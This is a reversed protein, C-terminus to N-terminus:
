GPDSVLEVVVANLVLRGRDTLRFRGSVTEVFGQQELFKRRDASMHAPHRDLEAVAIGDRLRLGMFLREEFRDRDSLPEWDTASHPACRVTDLWETPSRRALTAFRQGGVTLRGHAGPGIGAYDKGTWYCRNHRCQKGSRAFNSVEYLSLGNQECLDQSLVFMDAALDDAPPNLTGRRRAREFPTGPEITLQYLSLHDPQWELAESLESRWDALTQGPRAYILDLSLNDFQTRAADFASRATAADHWRGLFGLANDDISQVGLSLRNIGAAKLMPATQLDIDSPNAELSVELRDSLPWLAAARDLIASISQPAMLSPTGGGFYVTELCRPGTHRRLRELELLYADRWVQQDISRLRAVNFDCYPCIRECFPWHLYLFLGSPPTVDTADSVPM